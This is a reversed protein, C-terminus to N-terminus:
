RKRADQFLAWLGETVSDIHFHTRFAEKAKYGMSRIEPDELALFKGLLATTGALDDNEVLGAGANEIERWINVKNSILVPVGCSMAEAVAIGFNEQHSPLVFAFANRLTGWKADGTLMGPWHVRDGIGLSSALRMLRPKCNDHDPGAIVLDINMPRATAAFAQLLLDCGKKPHIRSLFLLYKRQTLKPLAMHFAANQAGVALPPDATGYGVVIEKYRSRGWFVGRALRREEEATFLVGNARELLPGESVLWSIQKAIHKLPYENRFWPDMMGHTYVFYPVDVRALATSAARASYNWLGNVVICDYNSVNRTLWKSFKPNYGYRVWPIYSRRRGRRYLGLAHVRIPFDRLFAASPHDLSVIERTGGLLQMAENQRLVGEIPGGTAPDASGIIHLIRM